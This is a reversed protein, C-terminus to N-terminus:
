PEDVGHQEGALEGPHNPLLQLCVGDHRDSLHLLHPARAFRDYHMHHDICLNLGVVCEAVGHLDLNAVQNAVQNSSLGINQFIICSLLNVNNEFM